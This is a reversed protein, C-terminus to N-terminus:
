ADRNEKRLEGALEARAKSLFELFAQEKFDPYTWSFHRFAGKRFHLTVEGYIGQGLYLRHYFDKTSALVLKDRSLYGPDINVRRRGASAHGAEISNTWLKIEPLLDREIAREFVLYTKILGPGMEAAYYDSWTFPVPGYAASTSGFREVLRDVVAAVPFRGEYMVAVLLRVPLPEQAEGM